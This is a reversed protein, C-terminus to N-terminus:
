LDVKSKVIKKDVTSAVVDNINIEENSENKIWYCNWHITV